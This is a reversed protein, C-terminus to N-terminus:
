RKKEFVVLLYYKDYCSRRRQCVFEQPILQTTRVAWENDEMALITPMVDPCKEILVTQTEITQVPMAKRWNTRRRSHTPRNNTPATGEM